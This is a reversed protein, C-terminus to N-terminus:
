GIRLGTLDEEGPPTAPIRDKALRGDVMHLIKAAVPGSDQPLDAYRAALSAALRLEDDDARGLVLTLPGPVGAIQLLAGGAPRRRYHQALIQNERQNRGVIAVAQTGLRFHRGVGILPLDDTGIGGLRALLERYRAASERYTLLCGGAPPPYSLGWQRALAEQASRGRGSLGLLRSRDVWGREEPITPPLCLASLPRLVLGKLNTERDTIQLADRRQSMPRQGVVEGTALYSAGVEPMFAAAQRLQYIRCDQCPNANKGYGFKPRALIGALEDGPRIVHPTVGVQAATAMVRALGEPSASRTFPLALHVAEVAVGQEQLLKIALLSDLGGSFLALAKHSM